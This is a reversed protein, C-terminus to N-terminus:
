SDKVSNNLNLFRNHKTIKKILLIGFIISLIGLPIFIIMFLFFIGSGSALPGLFDGMIFAIMAFGIPNFKILPWIGVFNRRKVTNKQLTLYAPVITIIGPIIGLFNYTVFVFYFIEILGMAIFFWCLKRIAKSNREQEM